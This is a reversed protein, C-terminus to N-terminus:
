MYWNHLAVDFVKGQTGHHGIFLVIKHKSFRWSHSYPPQWQFFLQEGNVLVAMQSTIIGHKWVVWILLTYKMETKTHAHKWKYGWELMSEKLQFMESSHIKTNNMLFRFFPTMLNMASIFKLVLVEIQFDHKM